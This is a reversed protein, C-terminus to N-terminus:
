ILNAFHIVLLISGAVFAAGGINSARVDFAGSVYQPHDSSISTSAADPPYVYGSGQGSTAVATSHIAADVSEHNSGMQSGQSPASLPPLGNGSASSQKMGPAPAGGTVQPMADTLILASATTTIVPLLHTSVCDSTLKTDAFVSGLLLPHVFLVSWHKM